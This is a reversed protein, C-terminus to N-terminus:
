QGVSFIYTYIYRFKIKRFQIMDHIPHAKTQITPDQMKAMFNAIVKIQSNYALVDKVYIQRENNM